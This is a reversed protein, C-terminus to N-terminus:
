EAESEPEVEPLNENEIQEDILSIEENNQKEFVPHINNKENKSVFEGQEEYSEEDSPKFVEVRNRGNQKARYLAADAKRVLADVNDAVDSSSVGISVTFRVEEGNDSFVVISAITQRLREAVKQAQEADIEPLFVVFEEGGYRAVIDVDRLAKETKGALEILVKDGIKHGYTDNVRKFFDADLMLVSYKRNEAQAKVIRQKVEEEFFRRNYVYTLPDRTAQNELINERKKRSTIDQFATYLALGNNYNIVNASVMLWFPTSSNPSNVLVEFDQVKGQKKIAELLQHRNDADAFFEKLYHKDQNKSELGFLKMANDNAIMIKDDGLQSIIIPFPSFKIIEEIKKNHEMFKLKNEHRDILLEDSKMLLFSMGYLVYSIPAMYWSIYEDSFFATNLLTIINVVTLAFALIYGRAYRQSFRGTLGIAFFIYTALPFVSLMKNVIDGAPKIVTFLVIAGCGLLLLTIGGAIFLPSKVQISLFTLSTIVIMMMSIFLLLLEIMVYNEVPYGANFLEVAHKEVYTEAFNLVTALAFFTAGVLLSREKAANYIAVILFCLAFITIRLHEQNTFIEFNEM